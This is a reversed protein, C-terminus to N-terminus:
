PPQLYARTRFPGPEPLRAAQQVSLELQTASAATNMSTPPAAERLAHAKTPLAVPLMRLASLQDRGDVCPRPLM